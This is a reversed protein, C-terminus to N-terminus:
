SVELSRIASVWREIAIQQDLLERRYQRANAGYVSALHPDGKLSIVADLLAAPNGADVVIGARAGSVEAATIGGFSTAAVVPRGADFYSTLKSPVAMASVGPKENVLLVDASALALRFEADSLPDMFDLSSVGRAYEKLQRKEGGDGILVFRIPIDHQSAIRAADIINELGQKAGMNGAHVAIFDGLPWGILSRASAADILESNPLHTWNRIVAINGSVGLERDLYEAFRDHIAVVLDAARLTKSEAWRIIRRVHENGEGTEELGLTYIDQVWVIVRPRRTMFRARILAIATAFLSPSVAIIVKPRNWSALFLRLGFSIESMFRRIGRPVRPVYHLYRKLVIGAEQDTRYWQGYGEHIRWEPYHPHAVRLTVDYGANGLGAALAGVYPAIGTREPPANLSFISVHRRNSM